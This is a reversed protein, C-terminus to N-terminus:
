AFTVPLNFITTTLKKNIFQVVWDWMGLDRWKSASYRLFPEFFDLHWVSLSHNSISVGYELTDNRILKLPKSHSLWPQCSFILSIYLRYIIDHYKKLECLRFIWFPPLRCRTNQPQSNSWEPAYVTHFELYTGFKTLIDTITVSISASISLVNM